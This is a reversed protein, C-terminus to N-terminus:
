RSTSAQSGESPARGNVPASSSSRAPSAGSRRSSPASRATRSERRRRDGRGRQDHRREDARGQGARRRHRVAFGARRDAPLRRRRRRRGADAALPGAGGEGFSAANRPRLLAGDDGAAEGRDMAGCQLGPAPRRQAEMGDGPGDRGGAPRVPCRFLRPAPHHQGLVPATGVLGAAHWTSGSTLKNREILLVDTLGMAGLHYAVSSGVIGGGVIVIKASSPLESASM